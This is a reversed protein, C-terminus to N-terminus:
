KKKVVPNSLFTGLRDMRKSAVTGVAFRCSRHAYDGTNKLKDIRETPQLITPVVSLACCPTSNRTTSLSRIVSIMSACKPAYLM